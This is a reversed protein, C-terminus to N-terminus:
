EYSGDGTANSQSNAMMYDYIEAYDSMTLTKTKSMEGVIEAIFHLEPDEKVDEKALELLRLFLETNMCIRDKPSSIGSLERMRDIDTEM